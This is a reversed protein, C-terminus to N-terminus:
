AATGGNRAVFAITGDRCGADAPRGALDIVKIDHHFGAQELQRIQQPIGIFYLMTQYHHGVDNVISHEDTKTEQQRYRIRNRARLATLAVFRGSRVLLKLPNRTIQFDPFRFWAEYQRSNRNCTSFAFSGTPTLVRRVERLIDLRGAHDVMSIGNCSFFVLDFSADAFGSMSRADAQEFRVGPFERRCHDIMEQTYDLGVYQKSHDLLPRVTRGAGVGIDLIRANSIEGAVSELAAKEQSNLGEVVTSQYEKVAARMTSKNISDMAPNASSM